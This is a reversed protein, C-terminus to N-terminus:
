QKSVICSRMGEIWGMIQHFKTTDAVRIQLTGHPLRDYPRKGQSARSLVYSSKYFNDKPLGTVRSWYRLTEEENLHKFLRVHATIKEQSIEVIDTLFRIFMQVMEPDTNTFSISHSTISRGNRVKLKKYGEAWYLVVGVLFLERKSISKIERSAEGQIKRARQWALHTQMKNRKVLGNLTGQAVRESIRKQAKASLVLGSFWGSLTAKPVGLKSNIENYSYGKLRLKFAQEKISSRAM